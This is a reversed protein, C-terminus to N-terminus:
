RFLKVKKIGTESVVEEEDERKPIGKELLMKEVMPFMAEYARAKEHDSYMKEWRCNSHRLVCHKNWDLFLEVPFNSSPVNVTGDENEWLGLQENYKGSKESM